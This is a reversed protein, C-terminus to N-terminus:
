PILPLQVGLGAKNEYGTGGYYLDGRGIIPWQNEVEALKQYTLGSYGPVRDVLKSFVLSPFRNELELGLRSGLIGAIEYDPKAEGKPNAAPYFRQVRREGSTFTGERETPALAPLVIDALEATETLFLDQVITLKEPRKKYESLLENISDDEGAPDAGVIYVVTAAEIAAKLDAHPRLGIDWAGQDNVRPWVGVLGNNRKGIKGTSIHLEACAEALAASGGMNLGEYGFFIVGNDAGALDIEQITQVM